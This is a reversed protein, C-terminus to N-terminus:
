LEPIFVLEGAASAHGNGDGRARGTSLNGDDIIQDIRQLSATPIVGQNNNADTGPADEDLFFYLDPIGDGTVDGSAISFHGGWPHSLNWVGASFYPGSWGAVGLANLYPDTSQTCTLGCDAPYQGTDIYYAAVVNRLERLQAVANAVKARERASNLSVLVVSSLIGIIAIVVLLEILTFGRNRM